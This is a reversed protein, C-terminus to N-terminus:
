KWLNKEKWRLVRKYDVQTDISLKTKEWKLLNKQCLVARCGGHEKMWPTVHERDDPLYANKWARELMGFTFVEVDFGDPYMPAILRNATYDAKSKLHERVTKEIVQSNLLPCDATLRVIHDPTVLRACQYYRDLVDAESGVYIPIVNNVLFKHLAFDTFPVAVCVDNVNKARAAQLFIREIITANGFPMVVKGPLRTSKMRAQIIALVNPM